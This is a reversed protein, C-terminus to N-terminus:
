RVKLEAALESALAEYRAILAEGIGRAKLESTARFREQESAGALAGGDAAAREVLREITTAASPPTADGGGLALLEGRAVYCGGLADATVAGDSRM